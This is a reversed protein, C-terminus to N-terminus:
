DAAAVPVSDASSNSIFAPLCDGQWCGRQRRHRFEIWAHSVVPHDARYTVHLPPAPGRDLVPLDWELASGEQRAGEDARVVQAGDPDSVVVRVQELVYDSRNAVNITFTVEGLDPGPQGVNSGVLPPWGGWQVQVSALAVRSGADVMASVRQLGYPVRAPVRAELNFHGSGDTHATALPQDDDGITLAVDVDRAFGKGVLELRDGSEATSPSVDIRPPSSVERELSFAHDGDSALRSDAAAAHWRLDFNGPKADLLRVTMRRADNPDVVMNAAVSAGEADVVAAKSSSADLSRNFTLELAHRAVPMSAGPVPWSAVLRPAVGLAPACGAAALM